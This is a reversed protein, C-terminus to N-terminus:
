HSIFGVILGLLNVFKGLLSFLKMVHKDGLCSSFFSYYLFSNLYVM